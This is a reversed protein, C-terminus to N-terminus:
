CTLRVFADEFSEGASRDCLQAVPGRAVVSGAAVVVVSDCLAQVEDMVHSSFVVCRGEDRFRKLTDRLARVSPVDLGNTPEDLVVNGPGHVLARGLATKMRQGQSFGATRRDAISEMGLVALTEGVCTEPVGRLEAFYALHERATLRAYLGTHDLIAGLKQQAALPHDTGSVGDIHVSGADPRLAGCIIRLATTKGAGNSGLLGTIEGDRAEFSLGALARVDGFRKYVNRVSIM